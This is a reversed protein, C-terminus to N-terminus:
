FLNFCLFRVTYQLLFTKFLYWAMENNAPFKRHFVAIISTLLYITCALMLFELIFLVHYLLLIVWLWKSGQTLPYMFIRPIPLLVRVLHGQLFLLNLSTQLSNGTQNMQMSTEGWCVRYRWSIECQYSSYKRRRKKFIM